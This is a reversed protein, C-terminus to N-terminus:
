NYTFHALSSLKDKLKTYMAVNNQEDILITNKSVYTAADLDATTLTAALKDWDMIIEGSYQQGGIFVKDTNAIITQFDQKCIFSIQYSTGSVNTYVGHMELANGSGAKLILKYESKSYSGAPTSFIGSPIIKLSNNFSLETFLTYSQASAVDKVGNFTVSSVALKYSSWSLSSEAGKTEPIVLIPTSLAGSKIKVVVESKAPQVEPLEKDKSCSSLATILVLVAFVSKFYNKM